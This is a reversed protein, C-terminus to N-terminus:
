PVVLANEGDALTFTGLWDRSDADYMRWIRGEAAGLDTTEGAAVTARLMPPCGDGPLLEFVDVAAGSANEVTVTAAVPLTCASEWGDPEPLPEPYYVATQCGSLAVLAFLRTM